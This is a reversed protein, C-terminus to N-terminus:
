SMGESSMDHQELCEIFFEDRDSGSYVNTVDLGAFAFYVRESQWAVRIDALMANGSEGGDASCEEALPRAIDNIHVGRASHKQNLDLSNLLRRVGLM